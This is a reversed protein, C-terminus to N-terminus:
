AGRTQERAADAAQEAKLDEYFGLLKFQRGRTLPSGQVAEYVPDVPETETAQGGEALQRISGREWGLADELKTRTPRTPWRDGTLVSRVTKIDVDARDALELDSWGRGALARDVAAAVAGHDRDM